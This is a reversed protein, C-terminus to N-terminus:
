RQSFPHLRPVDVHVHQPFFDITDYSFGHEGRIGDQPVAIVRAERHVVLGVRAELEQSEINQEVPLELRVEEFYSRRPNEIPSLVRFLWEAAKSDFLVCGPRMAIERVIARM